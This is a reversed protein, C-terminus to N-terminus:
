LSKKFRLKGEEAYKLNHMKDSKTKRRSTECILASEEWEEEEDM